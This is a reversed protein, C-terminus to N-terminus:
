IIYGVTQLTLHKKDSCFFSIRLDHRAKVTICYDDYIDM